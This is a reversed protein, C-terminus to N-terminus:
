ATVAVAEVEILWEDRVLRQIGVFTSAPPVDFALVEDRAAIIGDRQSSDYDVVFVTIKVLDSPSAGVAELGARINQFCQRAQAVVDGSGVLTGDVAHPVQGALFIMRRGEAVVVHTYGTPPAVTEPNVHRIGMAGGGEEAAM